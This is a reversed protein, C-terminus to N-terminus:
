IAFILGFAFLSARVLPPTCALEIIEMICWLRRGGNSQRAQVKREKKQIQRPRSQVLGSLGAPM